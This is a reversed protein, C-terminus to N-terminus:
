KVRIVGKKWPHPYCYYRYEGPRDFTRSWKSDEVVYGSEWSGDEAKASHPMKAGTMDWTVTDGAAIDVAEPVWKWNEADRDSDDVGVVHDQAAAAPQVNPWLGVGFVAAVVGAIIWSLLKETKGGPALATM